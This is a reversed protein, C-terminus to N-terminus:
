SDGCRIMARWRKWDEAVEERVDFVQVSVFRRKPNGRQRRGPPEIKIMKRGIYESDMRSMHGFCRLSPERVQDGFCSIQVTGRMHENRIRDM